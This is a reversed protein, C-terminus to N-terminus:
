VIDKSEILTYTFSNGWLDRAQRCIKMFVAFDDNSAIVDQQGSILRLRNKELM